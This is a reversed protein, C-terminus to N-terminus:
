GALRREVPDGGASGDPCTPGMLVSAIRELLGALERHGRHTEVLHEFPHKLLATVTLGQLGDGHVAVQFCV